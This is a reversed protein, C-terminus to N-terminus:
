RSAPWKGDECVLQPGSLLNFGFAVCMETPFTLASDATNTWQCHTHITDGSHVAFMKDAPFAVFPPNFAMDATWSSDSSITAKSGDPHVVETYASVGNGHMHNAFLFFSMDTGVPCNLDYGYDPANPPITFTDGNNVFFGAITRNSSPPSYQVDLVAQGEITETSVNLFHTNAVLVQGKPLRFAVNPPLDKGINSVGEGGIGGLFQVTLMDDPKCLRSTGVPQAATSAYLVVHHGYKSQLGTVSLVDQDEDAPETLWQCWINSTGGAIGEIVPTVYRTFGAAAPPPDFGAIYPSPSPAPATSASSCATSAGFAALAMTLNLIDLRRLRLGQQGIRIM